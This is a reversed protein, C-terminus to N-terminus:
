GPIEHGNNNNSNNNNNNNNNIIIIIIMMMMMSLQKLKSFFSKNVTSDTYSYFTRQLYCNSARKPFFKNNLSVITKM